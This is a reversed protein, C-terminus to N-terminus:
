FDQYNKHFTGGKILLHDYSTRLYNKRIGVKTSLYSKERITKLPLVASISRHLGPGINYFKKIRLDRIKVSLYVSLLSSFSAM